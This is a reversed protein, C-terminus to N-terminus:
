AVLVRPHDKDPLSQFAVLAGRRGRTRVLITVEPIQPGAGEHM